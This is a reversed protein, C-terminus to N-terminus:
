FWYFYNLGTFPSLVLLRIDKKGKEYEIWGNSTNITSDPALELGEPLYDTIETATGDIEGENYVRITYTVIDGKEVSLPTKSHSKTITKGNDLTWTGEQPVRSSYSYDTGTRENGKSDTIKTIFKRLALDFPKDEPVETSLSATYSDNSPTVEIIPQELNDTGPIWLTADTTKYSATVDINIKTGASKPVLVYFNTMNSIKTGTSSVPYTIGSVTTGSGNKVTLGLTYPLGNNETIKIPGVIYNDGSENITLTTSTDVTIPSGLKYGNEATYKDKNNEATRILYKYLADMQDTKRPGYGDQSSQKHITSYTQWADGTVSNKINLANKIMDKSTGAFSYTEDGYNTYYWLVLQQVVEVDDDSLPMGSYYESTLDIGAATLLAERNAKDTATNGTPIYMNDIVSLLQKYYTGTINKYVSQTTPFNDIQSKDKRIDYGKQYAVRAEVGGDDRSNWTTGYGGKVCYLNKNTSSTSTNSAYSVLDWIHKGGQGNSPDGIAYATNPTAGTRTERLNVYFPNSQLDTYANTERQGFALCLTVTIAVISVLLKKGKIKM